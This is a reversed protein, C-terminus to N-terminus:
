TLSATEQVAQKRIPTEYLWAAVFIALSSPLLMVQSVVLMPDGLAIAYAIWSCSTLVSLFWTASSVGSASTRFVKILQPLFMVVSLFNAWALLWPTGSIVFVGLAIAMSAIPIATTTSGITTRRLRLAILVALAGAGTLINALVLGWAPYAIGLGLWTLHNALMLSWTQSSVGTVTGEVVVKRVQPWARAVGFATGILAFLTALM